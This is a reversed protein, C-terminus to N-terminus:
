VHQWGQRDKNLYWYTAIEKFKAFFIKVNFLDTKVLFTFISFICSNFAVKNFKISKICNRTDQAQLSLAHVFHQLSLFDSGWRILQRLMGNRESGKHTLKAVFHTGATCSQVNVFSWNMAAFLVLTMETMWCKRPLMMQLVMDSTMVFNILCFM